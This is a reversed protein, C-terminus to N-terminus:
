LTKQNTNELLKEIENRQYIRTKTSKNQRNNYLTEVEVNVLIDNNNFKFEAKNTEANSYGAYYIRENSFTLSIKKNSIDKITLDEVDNYLAGTKISNNFNTKLSILDTTSLHGATLKLLNYEFFSNDGNGYVTKVGFENNKINNVITKLTEYVPIRDCILVIQSLRKKASISLNLQDLIYNINELTKM